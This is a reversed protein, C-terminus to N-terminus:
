LFVLTKERQSRVAAECVRLTELADEGPVLPARKETIAALFDKLERKLPEEKQVAVQRTDYHFSIHYLDSPDYKQLTSSSILVSQETYDAEVFHKLCTLAFKRVKMPTLWSVEVFGNVGNKFNLLITAHDEFTAHVKRGGSAFVSEVTSGVVYRLVDVDHIGLDLIVGVDRVRDPFNSVRRSSATILDGWDGAELAEKAFAVVPNHREIHGAALVIGAEKAHKVIARAEDMTGALPKEVLVHVGADILERAVKGHLNTPVAVSVAEVGAKVLEKASPFAKSDTRAAVRKATEPDADVVGVLDAIESYVRAHNQGMSGVGVVGVRM